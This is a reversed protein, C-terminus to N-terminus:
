GEAKGKQANAHGLLGAQIADFLVRPVLAAQRPSAKRVGLSGASKRAENAGSHSATAPKATKAVSASVGGHNGCPM